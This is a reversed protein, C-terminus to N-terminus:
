LYERDRKENLGLVDMKKYRERRTPRNFWRYKATYTLNMLERVVLREHKRRFAERVQILSILM